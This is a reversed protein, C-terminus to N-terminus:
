QLPQAPRRSPRRRLGRRLLVGLALVAVVLLGWVLFPAPQGSTLDFVSSAPRTTTASADPAPATPAPAAGTAPAPRIEPATAAYTPGQEPKGDVSVTLTYPVTLNQQAGDPYGTSFLVYYDGDVSYDKVIDSSAQRNTWRVPVTTDAYMTSPTGGVFAAVADTQGRVDTVASRLPNAVAVSGAVGAGIAVGPLKPTDVRASLRQGWGLHVKVYRTEGAVVTDAFTGPAILPADNFGTGAQVPTETASPIPAPAKPEPEAPPPVMRVDAKPEVRLSIELPIAGAPGDKRAVKFFFTGEPACKAPWKPGGVEGPSLVATTTLTKGQVSFSTGYESVSCASSTGQTSGDDFTTHVLLSNPGPAQRANPVVTASLYPTDGKHLTVAYWKGPEDDGPSAGADALSDVYQGPVLRPAGAPTPTGTVPSGALAYPRLARTVQNQLVSGLAPGDAADRYSGGTAGAICTLQERAAQDVKFGITHVVLDVGKAKLQQAVDCPPPPACTDEGDSVLVISRPGQQPLNQAATLLSQGIPTYGRAQVGDVSATFKAPDVPGVPVPVTIDRCGADKEAPSSGTSTGYVELGVQADAPLARVLGRVAGKAADIRPGPADSSNMSGSSDLVVMVPTSSTAPSPAAAATGTLVLTPGALAVAVMLSAVRRRGSPSSISSASM